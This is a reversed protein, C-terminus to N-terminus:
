SRAAARVQHRDTFPVSRILKQKIRRYTVSALEARRYGVLRSLVALLKPENPRFGPQVRNIDLVLAEFRAPKRGVYHRAAIYYVHALETARAGTLANEASWRAEAARANRVCGDIFDDRDQRSLSGTRQRYLFLPENSVAAEFGAGAFCLRLLLDVDEIHRYAENYGNLRELWSRRFIQSGTAMFNGDRIADLAPDSGFSPELGPRDIEWRGSVSLLRAWRSFVVATSADVNQAAAMQVELKRPHLLDDADLFQIWESSAHRWGRNRAASPGHSGVSVLVSHLVDHGILVRRAIEITRDTSGDDVVVVEIASRVYTQDLVSTITEEIWEEANLAPIVVSVKLASM